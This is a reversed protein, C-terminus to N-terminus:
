SSLRPPQPIAPSSNRVLDTLEKLTKVNIGLYRAARKPGFLAQSPIQTLSIIKSTLAEM